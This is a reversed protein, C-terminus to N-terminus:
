KKFKSKKLYLMENRFEFLLKALEVRNKTSKGLLTENIKQNLYFEILTPLQKFNHTCKKYNHLANIIATCYSNNFYNIDVNSLDRFHGTVLDAEIIMEEHSSLINGFGIIEEASPIKSIFENSRCSLLIVKKNVFLDNGISENVFTYKEFVNSEPTYLGTSHGHGLFVVTSNEPIQQLFKISNDVSEKNPEIVFFDEQFEKQFVSLFSTSDDLAFLFFLKSM